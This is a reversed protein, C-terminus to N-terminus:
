DACSLAHPAACRIIKDHPSFVNIQLRGCIAALFNMSTSQFAHLKQIHPIHTHCFVSTALGSSLELKYVEVTCRRRQRWRFHVFERLKLRMAKSLNHHRMFHNLKELEGFFADNEEAMKALLGFVGGVIYAYLCCSAAIYAYLCCSAAAVPMMVVMELTSGPVADGFGMNTM